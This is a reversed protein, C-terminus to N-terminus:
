GHTLDKVKMNETWDIFERINDFIIQNVWFGNVNIADIGISGADYYVLKFGNPYLTDIQDMIALHCIIFPDTM